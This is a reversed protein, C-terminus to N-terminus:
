DNRRTANGIVSRRIPAVIAMALLTILFGFVLTLGADLLRTGESLIAPNGQMVVFGLFGGLLVGAASVLLMPGFTQAAATDGHFGAPVGLRSLARTLEAEEFVASAQTLLTSIGVLTFGVVLTIVIGTSVDTLITETGDGDLEHPNSALFGVLISLFALSSVRRWTTRADTLVRRSAVFNATGPLAGAIRASLQIVLPMVLSVMGILFLLTLSTAIVGAALNGGPNIPNLVLYAVGGVFAIVFAVLRWMKVARPIQRRAVGLPTIRVRQLGILSAVVALVVVVAWVIPYIWWPLLMEWTGIPVNHFTVLGWAPATAISLATGAVLGVGVQMLTEFLTMRTVDGSSLGVLRLVALRRERGSAGLVATHATVSIIAPVLFVCAIIALLVYSGLENRMPELEPTPHMSRQYFMWTGGAVILSLWTVITFSGVALATLTGTGTRARIGSRQLSWGLSMLGSM